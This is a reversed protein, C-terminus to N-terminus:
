PKYNALKLIQEPTYNSIMEQATAFETDRMIIECIRYGAFSAIRPPAGPAVGSRISEPAEGILPRYEKYDSEFLLNEKLFYKWINSEEGLLWDWQEKSYEMIHYTERCPFLQKLDYYKAGEILMMALMHQPKDRELELYERRILERGINQAIFDKKFYKSKYNPFFQKYAEFNEGLYMDLDIFLHDDQYLWAMFSAFGSYCTHIQPFTHQPYRLKYYKALLEVKEYVEEFNGFLTDIRQKIAQNQASNIHKFVLRNFSEDRPFSYIKQMYLKYFFSDSEQISALQSVLNSPDNISYFSSDFRHWQVEVQINKVSDHSCDNCAVVSLAALLLIFFRTKNM